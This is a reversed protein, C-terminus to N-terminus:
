STIVPFFFEIRIGDWNNSINNNIIKSNSTNWFEVGVSAYSLNLDKITINNSNIAIVQGADEVVYDNVNELYVLPKGNVTNNVVTNNYSDLVRMGNLHFTNNAITNSDAADLYIGSMDNLSITNNAIINNSSYWISIGGWKNSSVNNNAITNNDGSSSIGYKNNSSVTNNTIINNSSYDSLYIGDGNNSSVINNAIINSRSYYLYIGCLNNSSVTNNTITNNYSNYLYIGYYNNSANVNEIRCNNSKYLYLYIGAKNTGTVTFGKITVNDATVYFVHDNPNSAKIITKDAGNESRITLHPKNVKINETYVGEYVVIECGEIADDVGEQITDWKHNAPDDVFDDDVYVIKLSINISKTEEDTAGDDDTVTLTVDYSGASSYSHTVIMGTATNGDGFNWEYKVITGDPDTSNSADFTIEQSVFPYKPSFTFSATPPQNPKKKTTFHWVDGETVAGHEDRAVIKWYYTSDSDLTGPDYTTETQNESVLEDPTSDDKEFYVDYTVSDGDPDGGSWRLEVDIDVDTAGDPPSPNFPKYPPQNEAPKFYNEWPEMLPYNDKDLPNIVYPTDGIGDNNADTGTYDNWYNGM